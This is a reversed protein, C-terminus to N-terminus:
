VARQWGGGGGVGREGGGGRGRSSGRKHTNKVNLSNLICSTATQKNYRSPQSASDASRQEAHQFQIKQIQIQHFMGSALLLKNLNCQWRKIM